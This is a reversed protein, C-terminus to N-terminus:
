LITKLITLTKFNNLIIEYGTMIKYFHEVNGYHVKHEVSFCRIIELLVHM